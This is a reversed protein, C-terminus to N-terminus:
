ENLYELLKPIIGELYKILKKSTNVPQNITADKVAILKKYVVIGDPDEIQLYVRNVGMYGRM